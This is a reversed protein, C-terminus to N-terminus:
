KGLGTISEVKRISHGSLCLSIVKAEDASSIAKMTFTPFLHPTRDSLGKTIHQSM